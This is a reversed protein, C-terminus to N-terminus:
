KKIVASDYIIQHIRNIIEYDILTDLPLYSMLEEFNEAEYYEIYSDVLEAAEEGTLFINEKEAIAAYFCHMRIDSDIDTDMMEIFDELSYGASAFYEEPRKGFECTVDYMNDYYEQRLSNYIDEPVTKFTSNNFAVSELESAIETESVEIDGRLGSMIADSCADLSDYGLVGCIFSETWSPEIYRVIHRLTLRFTGTFGAFEGYMEGLTIDLDRVEGVKMGVVMDDLGEGYTYDGIFAYCDEFTYATVAFGGMIPVIDFYIEDGMQVSIANEDESFVGRYSDLLEQKGQEFSEPTIDGTEPVVYELGRYQGPVAFPALEAHSYGYTKGAEPYSWQRAVYEAPDPSDIGPIVAAGTETDSPDTTDSPDDPVPTIVTDDLTDVDGKEPDGEPTSPETDGGFMDFMGQENYERITDITFEDGLYDSLLGNVYDNVFPEDIKDIISLALDVLAPLDFYSSSDITEYDHVKKGEISIIPEKYKKTESEAAFTAIAKGSDLLEVTCRGSREKGKYRVTASFNGFDKIATRVFAGPKAEITIDRSDDDSGDTIKVSALTVNSVSIKLNGIKDKGDKYSTYEAAVDTSKISFELEGGEVRGKGNVYETFKLKTSPDIKSILDKIDEEGVIGDSDIIGDEVLMELLGKLLSQLEKSDFSVTVESIKVEDDGLSLTQNKKIKVDEASNVLYSAYKDFQESLSEDDKGRLKEVTSEGEAFSALYDKIKKDEVLTLDLISSLDIVDERYTPLQVYLSGKRYDGMMRLTILEQGGYAPTLEFGFESDKSTFRLKLEEDKFKYLDFKDCFEDTVSIRYDASGETGKESKEEAKGGLLGFAQAATEGLSIKKATRKIQKSSLWRFYAEDSKTMLMFNNVIYDGAIVYTAAASLVLVAAIIGIVLGIHKRM